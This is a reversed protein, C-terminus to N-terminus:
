RAAVRGGGGARGAGGRRAQGPRPWWWRRGGGLAVALESVSADFGPSAFQLVRSGPGAAFWDGGAGGALSGLGAHSVVVGKPAGTSGSTYIVYAAHGPRVGGARSMGPPGATTGAPRSMRRGAGPGAGRRAGPLRDRCQAPDTVIVAPRADALM